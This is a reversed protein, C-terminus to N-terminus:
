LSCLSVVFFVVASNNVLSKKTDKTNSIAKSVAENNKMKYLRVDFLTIRVGGEPPPYLVRVELSSQPADHLCEM